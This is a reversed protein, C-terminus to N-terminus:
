GYRIPLVGNHRQLGYEYRGQRNRINKAYTETLVRWIDSTPLPESGPIPVDNIGGLWLFGDLGLRVPASDVVRKAAVTV